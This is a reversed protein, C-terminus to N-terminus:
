SGIRGSKPYFAIFLDDKRVPLEKVANLFYEDVTTHQIVGHIKHYVHPHTYPHINKREM